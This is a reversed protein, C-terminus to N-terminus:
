NLVKASLVLVLGTDPADFSTRGVAAKQGERIDVDARISADHFQVAAIGKVAYPIRLALSMGSLRLVRNPGENAVQVRGVKFEYSPRQGDVGGSSTLGKLEGGANQATRLLLTDLVRFGQYQLVGKLQNVVPQLESPIPTNGAAQASAVLLYATLEINPLPQAAVDLRKVAEEIASVINPPGNVTIVRMERNATVSAGFPGVADAIARVDAHKIEIIRAVRGTDQARALWAFLLLCSLRKM